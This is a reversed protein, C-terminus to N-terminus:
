NRPLNHTGIYSNNERIETRPLGRLYSRSAQDRTGSRNGFFSELPGAWTSNYGESYAATRFKEVQAILSGPDYDVRFSVRKDPNDRSIYTVFGYESGLAHAYFNAQAAHQEKPARLSNLVSNDVTKLEVPVERGNIQMVVDVFGKVGLYPDVVPVEAGVFSDLKSLEHEVKKHVERGAKLAGFTADEDVNKNFESVGKSRGVLKRVEREPLGLASASIMHEDEIEPSSPAIKDVIWAGAVLGGALLMGKKSPKWKQFMDSASEIVNSDILANKAKNLKGNAIKFAENMSIGRVKALRKAEDTVQTNAAWESEPVEIESGLISAGSARGTAVKGEREASIVKAYTSNGHLYENLESASLERDINLDLGFSKYLKQLEREDVAKAWEVVKFRKSFEGEEELIEAIQQTLTVDVAGAHASVVKIGLGKAVIELTSGRGIVNEGMEWGIKDAYPALAADMHPKLMKMVDVHKLTKVFDAENHLGLSQLRKILLPSDYKHINYGYLETVKDNKLKNVFESLMEKETLQSNQLGRVNAPLDAIKKAGDEVQIDTHGFMGVAQKQPHKYGISYIGVPKAFIGGKGRGLGTTELDYYVRKGIPESSVKAEKARRAKSRRKDKLDELRGARAKRHREQGRKRSGKYAKEFLEGHLMEEPMGSKRQLERWTDIDHHAAIGEELVKWDKITGPTIDSAKYEVGLDPEMARDLDNAYELLEEKTRKHWNGIDYRKEYLTLEEWPRVSSVSEVEKVQFLQRERWQRESSVKAEKARQARREKLDELKGARAKRHSEQGRERHGKYLEEFSEGHLMEESTGSKRYFERFTDIDHHAAIGEVLRNLNSIDAEPVAGPNSSLVSKIAHSLDKGYEFLQEKTRKHWNRLDLGKEDLDLVEWPRVRGERM